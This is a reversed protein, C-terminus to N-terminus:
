NGGNIGQENFYAIYNQGDSDNTLLAVVTGDNLRWATLNSFYSGPLLANLLVSVTDASIDAPEGYQATQSELAAAYGDSPLQAYAMLPQDGRFVYYVQAARLYFFTYGNYDERNYQGAETLNEAALMGDVTTNWTVGNRYSFAAGAWVPTLLLAILLCTMRFLHKM